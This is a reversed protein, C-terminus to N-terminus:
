RPDANLLQSVATVLQAPAFPKQLLISNPVGQSGWEDAAAGTMYIVPFAGNIERIQRALDWGTKPGNLNVDTVLASYKVVGSQFLTLAEEASAAIVVDFGGDKLTDHVLDQLPGEDEVALVVPMEPLVDRGV